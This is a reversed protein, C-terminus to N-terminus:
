RGARRASVTIRIPSASAIAEHVHAANAGARVWERMDKVPPTVVRVDRCYPALSRALAAAGRQGPEDTDAVVVVATPAMRKVLGVVLGVGGSCSPRGIADFGLDLAAATDTPGEPLLLPGTWALGTPVFLGQKSGRVAYKSGDDGRLRIGCVRDSKGAMPFSWSRGTRGIGLQNLSGVTVGLGLSLRALLNAEVATQFALALDAFRDSCPPSAVTRV